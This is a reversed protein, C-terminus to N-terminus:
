KVDFKSVTAGIGLVCSASFSNWTLSVAGLDFSILDMICAQSGLFKCALTMAESDSTAVDSTYAQAFIGVMPLGCM